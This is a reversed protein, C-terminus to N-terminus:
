GSSVPPIIAVEDGDGIKTELGRDPGTEDIDVYDLNITVASSTIVKDKMGPYTEDLHGFLEGMTMPAPLHEQTRQTISGAAAFYLITFHGVPAKRGTM